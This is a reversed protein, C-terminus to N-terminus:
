CIRTNEKKNSFDEISPTKQLREVFLLKKTKKSITKKDLMVMEQIYQTEISLIKETTERLRQNRVNPSEWFGIKKGIKIGLNWDKNTEDEKKKELLKRKRRYFSNDKRALVGSDRTQRERQRAKRNKNSPEEIELADEYSM